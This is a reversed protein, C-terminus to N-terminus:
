EFPMPAEPIEAPTATGSESENILDQALLYKAWETLTMGNQEAWYKAEPGLKIRGNKGPREIIFPRHEDNTM